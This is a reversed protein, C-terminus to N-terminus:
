VNLLRTRSSWIMSAEFVSYQSRVNRFLCASAFSLFLSHQGLTSPCQELCFPREAMFFFPVQGLIKVVLCVHLEFLTHFPHKVRLICQWIPGTTSFITSCSSSRSPPSAIFTPSAILAAAAAGHAVREVTNAVGHVEVAVHSSQAVLWPPCTNM